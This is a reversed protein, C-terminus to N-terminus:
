RGTGSVIRQKWGRQSGREVREEYGLFALNSYQLARVLFFTKMGVGLVARCSFLKQLLWESPLRALRLKLCHPFMLISLIDTLGSGLM